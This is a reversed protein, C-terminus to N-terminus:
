FKIAQKQKDSFGYGIPTMVGDTTDLIALSQIKDDSFLLRMDSQKSKLDKSVVNAVHKAAEKHSLGPNTKQLDTILENISNKEVTTLKSGKKDILDAAGKIAKYQEAPLKFDVNGSRMRESEIARYRAVEIHTINGIPGQNIDSKEVPTASRQDGGTRATIVTPSFSKISITIVM